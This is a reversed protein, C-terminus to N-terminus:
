FDNYSFNGKFFFSLILIYKLLGGKIIIERIKIDKPSLKLNHNNVIFGSKTMEFDKKYGETRPIKMIHSPINMKHGYDM